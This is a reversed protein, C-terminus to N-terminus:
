VITKPSVKKFALQSLTTLILFIIAAIMYFKFPQHTNSSALQAKNMLDSLGLLSVLASDKLLVLWLNGIGPLAYRWAQPFLIHCFIYASPLGLAQAAERQGFPVALFAGRLTQAGYAAFILGLAFVGAIFSNIQLDKGTIWSLLASGGFYIGFLVILEPVGRILATITLVPRRIIANRSLEGWAGLLALILGFFLASVAVAITTGAGWLIQLGYGEFEIM